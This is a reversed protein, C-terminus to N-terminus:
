PARPLYSLFLTLSLSSLPRYFLLFVNQIPCSGGRCSRASGMALFDLSFAALLRGDDVATNPRHHITETFVTNETM